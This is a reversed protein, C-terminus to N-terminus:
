YHIRQTDFVPFVPFSFRSSAEQQLKEHELNHNMHILGAKKPSIKAIYEFAKEMSLHSAHEHNTVCDIILLDLNRNKLNEIQEDTIEHCDILYAFNDHIIGLTLTHGHNLMLFEFEENLIINRRGLEVKTLSLKPIGGGLPPKDKSFVQHSKFIYPFKLELSDACESHTFIPIELPPPGFCLPRLDDIGHCHDAHDHTIFAMDVRYIKNKLLQARLDVSTDVLIHNNKKTRILISTRLRQNKKNTSHCVECKCGVMPIGTSTGSGLIIIENNQNAM